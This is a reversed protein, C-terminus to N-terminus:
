VVGAVVRIRVWVGGPVVDAGAVVVGSSGLGTGGGDADVVFAGIQEGATSPLCACVAVVFAELAVVDAGACVADGGCGAGGCATHIILACRVGAADRLGAEIGVYMLVAGVVAGARAVEPTCATSCRHAVFATCADAVAVDTFVRCRGRSRKVIEGAGALSTSPVADALNWVAFGCGVM